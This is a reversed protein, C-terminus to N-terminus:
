LKFAEPFIEVTIIVRDAISRVVLEDCSLLSLITKKNNDRKYYM